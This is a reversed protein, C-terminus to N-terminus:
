DVCFWSRRAIRADIRHATHVRTRGDHACRDFEGLEKIDAGKSARHICSSHMIFAHHVSTAAEICAPTYLM